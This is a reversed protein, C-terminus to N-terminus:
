CIMPIKCTDMPLSNRFQIYFWSFCIRVNNLYYRTLSNVGDNYSGQFVQRKGTRTVDAKLAGTGAYMLSISDGSDAWLNVLNQYGDELAKRTAAVPDRVEHPSVGTAPLVQVAPLGGSISQVQYPVIHRAFISCTLNTRDLSDLCSVRM